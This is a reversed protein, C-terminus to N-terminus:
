RLVIGLICCAVLVAGLCVAVIIIILLTPGEGEEEPPANEKEVQKPQLAAEYDEGVLLGLQKIM